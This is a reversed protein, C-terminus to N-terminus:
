KRKVVQFAPKNLSCVEGVQYSGSLVGDKLRPNYSFRQGNALTGYFHYKAPGCISVSATINATLSSGDFIHVVPGQKENTISITLTYVKDGTKIEGNWEGVLNELDTTNERTLQKGCFRAHLCHSTILLMAVGIIRTYLATFKV